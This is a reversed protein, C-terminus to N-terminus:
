GQPSKRQGAIARRHHLFVHRELATQCAERLPEFCACWEGAAGQTLRAPWRFPQPVSPHLYLSILGLGVPLSEGADRWAAGRWSLRVPRVPQAQVQQRVLFALLDVLLNMKLHLRAVDGELGGVDDGIAGATRQEDLLAVAALVRLNDENYRDLVAVDPMESLVDWSLSFAGQYSLADEVVNNRLGGMGGAM